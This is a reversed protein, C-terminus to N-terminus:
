DHAPLYDRLEALSDALCSMLEDLDPMAERDATLALFIGGDYSTFGVGLAQNQTLPVFPYSAVMRAEGLYLAHQPGPANTIVLNYVRKTL